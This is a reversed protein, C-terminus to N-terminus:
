DNEEILLEFTFRKGDNDAERMAKATQELLTAVGNANANPTDMEITTPEENM